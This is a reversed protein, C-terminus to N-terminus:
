TPPTPTELGWSPYHSRLPPGRTRRTPRKWDGHPTILRVQVPMKRLQRLTELGWSPYHADPIARGPARGGDNGIGMLPLSHRDTISSRTRGDRKWDGHPTILGLDLLDPRKDDVHTELGWSPYHTSPWGHARTATSCTELGWSPYHAYRSGSAVPAAQPPNGIGMLPLSGDTLVALDPRRGLKWDGHPTILSALPGRRDLDPRNGIGMLPLSIRSVKSRTCDMLNGIGMLPLSDANVLTSLASRLNGIGMLPLSVPSLPSIVRTRSTELGWSPYHSASPGSRGPRPRRCNGIGMLPLSGLARNVGLVRILNGIGMLPLSRSNFRRTRSAISNGIGMLPLSSLHTPTARVAAPTNGIGMLPLSPNKWVSTPSPRTRKWDGHPTILQDGVRLAAGLGVHKWDGHPTMLPEELRLDALASDTELGWSPYHARCWGRGPLTQTGTELGWSPYHSRRPGDCAPRWMPTELGWSPYHSTRTGTTATGHPGTELGWSPYHTRYHM